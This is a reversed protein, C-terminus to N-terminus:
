PTAPAEGWAFKIGLSQDSANQQSEPDDQDTSELAATPSNQRRDLSEVRETIGSMSHSLDDLPEPTMRVM